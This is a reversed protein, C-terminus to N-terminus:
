FVVGDIETDGVIKVIIKNPLCILTRSSDGVFGEKSCINKPSNEKKVRIKGNEVELVVDGLEGDVIYENDISLDINLIVEDKYYVIATKGEVKTFRIVSYIILIILIIVIVLKLDSKNM